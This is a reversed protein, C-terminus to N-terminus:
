HGLPYCFGCDCPPKQQKEREERERSVRKAEAYFKEDATM